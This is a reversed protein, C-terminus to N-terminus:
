PTSTSWFSNAQILIDQSNKDLPNVTISLSTTNIYWSFQELESLLTIVADWDGTAQITIPITIISEQQTRRDTHLRVSHKTGATQAATEIDEIFQIVRDEPLLSQELIPSDDLELFEEQTEIRDSTASQLLAIQAETELLSQRGLQLQSAQPILLAVILVFLLLGSGIVGILNGRTSKVNKKTEKKM